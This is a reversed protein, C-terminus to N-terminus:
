YLAPKSGPLIDALRSRGQINQYQCPRGLPNEMFGPSEHWPRNSKGRKGFNAEQPNRVLTNIRKNGDQFEITVLWTDSRSNYDKWRFKPAVIEPPFLTEDLPYEITLQSYQTSDRYAALISAVRPRRMYVVILVVAAVVVAALTGGMVLRKGSKRM